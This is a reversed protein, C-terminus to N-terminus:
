PSPWTLFKPVDPAPSMRRKMELPWKSIDFGYQALFAAVFRSTGFGACGTFLTEGKAEKVSFADVFHEGHNNFSALSLWSGEEKRSGRFPLYAELLITPLDPLKIEREETIRGKMYFPDDSVTIRWELNFTEEVVKKTKDVVQERVSEVQKPTGLWVLEIRQFEMVRELGRTAGGEWRYTYGSYDLAKIPLDEKRVLEGGVFQYFPCCQTADLVYRPEELGQRLKEIPIEHTLRVERKFVEFLKPDRKPPCVYFLGEPIGELYKMKRYINITILKPLLFEQFGLELAVENVLTNTMIRFLKSLPPTYIHQGKGPFEKIWGLRAGVETPDENFVLRKRKSKELITGPKIKTVKMALTQIEIGKRLISRCHAIVRDLTGKRITSLSIERYSLTVGKETVDIDSIEPLIALQDRLYGIKEFPIGKEPILRVAYEKVMVERVGIRHKRGLEDALVNKLRLIAVHARGGEITVEMKNRKISWETVKPAKGETPIGKPLIKENIRNILQSIEDQLGEANRSLTVIGELKTHFVIDDKKRM